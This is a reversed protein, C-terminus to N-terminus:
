CHNNTYPSLVAMYVYLILLYTLLKGKFDWPIAPFVAFFIKLLPVKQLM